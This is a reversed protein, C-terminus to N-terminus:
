SAKKHKISLLYFFLVPFGWIVPTYGIDFSDLWLYFSDYGGMGAKEFFYNSLVTIICGGGRTIIFGLSVLIGWVFLVFDYRPFFYAVVLFLLFHFIQFLHGLIEM